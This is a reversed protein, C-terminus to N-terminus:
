RARFRSPAAADGRRRASCRRGAATNRGPAAVAAAGHLLGDVTGPAHPRAYRRRARDRVHVARVSGVSRLRGRGRGPRARRAATAAAAARDAICRRGPCTGVAVSRGRRGVAAGAQQEAHDRDGGRGAVVDGTVPTSNWVSPTVEAGDVGARRIGDREVGAEVGAALVHQARPRAVGRAVDRGPRRRQDLEAAAHGCGLPKVRLSLQIVPRVLAVANACAGSPRMKTVWCPPAMRAHDLVARQQRRRERGDRDVGRALAAQDADGQM